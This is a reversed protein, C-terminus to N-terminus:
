PQRDEEDDWEDAGAFRHSLAGGTFLDFGVYALAGAVGILILGLGVRGPDRGAPANEAAAQAAQAAQAAATLPPVPRGPIHGNASPKGAPPATKADHETSDTM